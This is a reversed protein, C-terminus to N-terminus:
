RGDAENYHWGRTLCSDHSFSRQAEDIKIHYWNSGKGASFRWWYMTCIHKSQRWLCLTLYIVSCTDILIFSFGLGCHVRSSCVLSVMRLWDRVQMSSLRIRHISAFPHSENGSFIWLFQLICRAFCCKKKLCHLVTHLNRASFDTVSGHCFSSPGKRGFAGLITFEPQVKQIAGAIAEHTPYGDKDKILIQFSSCSISQLFRWCYLLHMWHLWRYKRNTMGQAQRRM